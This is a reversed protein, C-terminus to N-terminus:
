DQQFIAKGIRVSLPMSQYWEWAKAAKEGASKISDTAEGVSTVFKGINEPAPLLSKTIRILEKEIGVSAQAIANATSSLLLEERMVGRSAGIGAGSKTVDGVDAQIARRGAAETTTDGTDPQLSRDWSADFQVQSLSGGMGRYRAYAQQRGEVSTGFRQQHEKMTAAELGVEGMSASKRQILQFAAEPGIAKQISEWSGADAGKLKEAQSESIAGSAVLADIGGEGKIDEMLAGRSARAALMGEYSGFQGGAVQQQVGKFSRAIGLAAEASKGPTSRALLSLQKGMTKSMESADLGTKIAEEMMGSMGQLLIPMDADIGAGRAFATAKGLDGGAREFTGALAGSESLSMGYVTSLDRSRDLISTDKLNRASEGRARGYASMGAGTDTAGFLGGGQRFGGMGATGLQQSRLAINANAVQQGKAIAFGALALPIGAIGAAVGVSGIGGGGTEGGGLAPSGSRGGGMGASRRVAAELRKNSEVLKNIASVLEKNQSISSGGSPKKEATKQAQIAKQRAQTAQKGIGKYEFKIKYDM